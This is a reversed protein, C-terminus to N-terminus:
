FRRGYSSPLSGICTWVTSSDGGIGVAALLSCPDERFNIGEPMRIHFGKLSVAHQLEEEMLAATIGMASLMYREGINGM